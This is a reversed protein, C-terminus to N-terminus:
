VVSGGFKVFQGSVSVAGGGRMVVFLIVLGTALMGTLRELMRDVSKPM